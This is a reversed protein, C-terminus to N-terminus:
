FNTLYLKMYNVYTLQILVYNIIKITQTTQIKIIDSADDSNIIKVMAVTTLQYVM